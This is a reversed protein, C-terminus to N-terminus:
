IHKMLIYSFQSVPLDSQFMCVIKIQEYLIVMISIVWIIGSIGIFSLCGTGLPEPPRDTPKHNTLASPIMVRLGVWVVKYSRFTIWSFNFHDISLSFILYFTFVLALSQSKFIHLLACVAMNSTIHTHLQGLEIIHNDVIAGLVTWTLCLVQLKRYVKQLIYM